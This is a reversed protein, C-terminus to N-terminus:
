TVVNRAQGALVNNVTRLDGRVHAPTFLKADRDVAESDIHRGHTLAFAPHYGVRDINMEVNEPLTAHFEDEAGSAEYSGPGQRDCQRISFM